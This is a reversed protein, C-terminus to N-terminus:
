RVIILKISEEYNDAMMKVFYIGTASTGPNWETEHVGPEFCGDELTAVLRGSLDYVSINVSTNGATSFSISSFTNAPNPMCNLLKTEFPLLNTDNIGSVSDRFVFEMEDSWESWILNRDRYRARWAYIHGDQLLGEPVELTTLDIGENLDVPLWDPPGTDGFINEWDRISDLHVTYGESLIFESSMILTEGSYDSASLIVPSTVTDSPSVAEPTDPPTFKLDRSFSDILVNDLPLDSNGLAYFDATYSSDSCDIDFLIYGYYDHARHIEAYDVAQGSWRDLGAGGGGSLLLHMHADPSAGHEYNHSHGYMFAEIKSCDILVPIVSDQVWSRNGDPWIESHGPHHAYAFVFMVDDDYEAAQLQSELWTIQEAGKINSDISIFLANGLMFAYYAEGDMGGSEYGDYEVYEYYFKAEWEHNGISIMFPVEGSMISIPNFYMPIYEEINWGFTVIDGVNLVANFSECPPGYVSDIKEYMAEVVETHMLSDTRSDGYCVFRIHTDETIVEPPTTFSRIPSVDTDTTCEYYYTQNPTLGTLQVSHWVISDNFFHCDGTETSGLSPTTGYEVTSESSLRSHWGIFISTPTPSQLYTPMGTPDTEHHALVVSSSLLLVAFIWISIKM